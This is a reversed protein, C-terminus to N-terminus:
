SMLSRRLKKFSLKTENSKVAAIITNIAAASKAITARGVIRPEKPASEANPAGAAISRQGVRNTADHTTIAANNRKPGETAVAVRRLITGPATKAAINQIAADAPNEQYAALKPAYLWVYPASPATIMVIVQSQIERLTM